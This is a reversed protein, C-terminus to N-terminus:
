PLLEGWVPEEFQLAADDLESRNIKEYQAAVDAWSQLRVTIQDGPRLRAAKTWTNDRMSWLYVLSEVPGTKDPLQSGAMDVLHVTLIHDKYPVSGPRPAPSVSEVIGTVEVHEGPKPSFFHAPRPQGLTMDLPKWNGFALERAAFEWVVQKKGALRDRGCALERSLIERTAFAGDSNRLICDLPQGLARSFHEAFGASEGWGMASLSFINCFSDGLLLVEAEKNQRWLANRSTVQRLTVKQPKYITQAAPLKLMVAIDGLAAIEKESIDYPQSAVLNASGMEAALETAVFEMTEPRWHTDTELYLPGSAKRQLLLPQPDFVWVRERSLREKFEVFSPNQLSGARGAQASLMEGDISPKVPMPLVILEIGRKALQNRFEVIAKIPDPQVNAARVREKMRAPDLFPPGTVYEVDPRYFLWGDRGTIAQENGARLKETIISQVRPLLWQSVVSDNELAKEVTKIEAATPVLHDVDAFTRTARIKERSPLLKCVDFMALGGGSHSARLESVLQIAPIALITLLFLAILLSRTGPTFRTNNLALEAEKERSMKRHTEPTPEDYGPLSRDPKLPKESGVPPM